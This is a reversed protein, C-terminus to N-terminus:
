QLAVLVPILGKGEQLSKLAKGIVSGFAKHHDDAKMAYGRTTSTTLLDGIEISSYTADVKCYVKGILAIPIRKNINDTINEKKDLVIAPKYDGIGSVVGAVKKDYAEHSQELNGAQNLVMVTGPETFDTSSLDFEEACDANTLRIDGTVEVDGQFRGALKGAMDWGSVAAYRDSFTEGRVGIGNQSRGYIGAVPNQTQSNNQLGEIANGEGFSQASLSIAKQALSLGDIL